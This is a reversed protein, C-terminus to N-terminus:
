SWPFPSAARVLWSWLDPPFWMVAVSVDPRSSVEIQSPRTKLSPQCVAAPPVVSIRSGAVPSVSPETPTAVAASMAAAQVVAATACLSHLWDHATRASTSRRAAASRASCDSVTVSHSTRSVPETRGFASNSTWSVNPSSWSAAARGDCGKPSSSGEVMGPLVTMARRIGRPTTPTMVGHFKGRTSLMRETAGASASPLATTSLGSTM